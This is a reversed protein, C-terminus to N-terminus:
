VIVSTRVGVEGDNANPNNQDLDAQRHRRYWYACPVISSSPFFVRTLYTISDTNNEFNDLPHGTETLHTMFALIWDEPTLGSEGHYSSSLDDKAEELISLYVGPTQNAELDKRPLEKGHTKGKGQRPIANFGRSTKDDPNSPRFLHIRWGLFFDEPNSTQEELIEEKTQGQHDEGFTKPLYVFKPHKGIDAGVYNDWTWFPETTHLDFTPHDKKYTLLFQKLTERLSDLSMGFPVLLLKTFGQDRKMRLKPEQELLRSAIQELMPILYEKGDIGIIAGDKLIGVRELFKVQVTYQETLNYFTEAHELPKLFEKLPEKHTILYELHTFLLSVAQMREPPIEKSTLQKGFDEKSRLTEVPISFEHCFALISGRLEDFHIRHEEPLSSRAHDSGSAMFAESFSEGSTHPPHSFEPSSSFPSMM